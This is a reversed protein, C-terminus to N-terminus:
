MAIKEILEEPQFPKQLVVDPKCEHMATSEISKDTLLVLKAPIKIQERIETCIHKDSEAKMDIIIIEPAFEKVLPIVDDTADTTIAKFGKKELYNKFLFQFDHDDNILLVKKM